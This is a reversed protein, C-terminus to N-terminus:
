FDSSVTKTALNFYMQILVCIISSHFCASRSFHGFVSIKRARIKGRESQIRVLFFKTNPCMERLSTNTRSYTVNYITITNM